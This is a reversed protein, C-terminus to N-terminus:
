PASEPVPSPAAPASPVALRALSWWTAACGFLCLAGSTVLVGYAIRRELLYSTETGVAAGASVLTYVTYLLIGSPAVLLFRWHTPVNLADELRRAILGLFFFSGWLTGGALVAVYNTLTVYTLYEAPTLLTTM